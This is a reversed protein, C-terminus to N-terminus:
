KERVVGGIASSQPLKSLEARGYRYYLLLRNLMPNRKSLRGGNDERELYSHSLSPTFSAYWSIVALGIFAALISFVLAVIGKATFGDPLRAPPHTAGDLNLLDDTRGAANGATAINQSKCAQLHDEPIKLNAQLEEPAEVMTATLGSAVHWEIHCHFLWIRSPIM